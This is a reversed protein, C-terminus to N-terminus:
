PMLNRLALSSSFIRYLRQDQCASSNGTLTQWQTCAPNDTASELLKQESAILIAYRLGLISAASGPSTTYSSIQGLGGTTDVGFEFHIGAVNTVLETNNCRISGDSLTLREVFPTQETSVTYAKALNATDTVGSGACDRENEDRPQYRLCLTQDDVQTIAQGETFACTQNGSTTSLTAAPFATAMELEPHRKYGAKTLRQELMMLLFRGNELNGSQGQQYLYHRKNDLFIQTIALLLFCSLTLAIMLEILSLGRQSHM